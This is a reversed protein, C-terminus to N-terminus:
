NLNINIGVGFQIGKKYSMVTATFSEDASLPKVTQVQKIEPNLLNKGYIKASIRDTIKKNIILDLSIYGKEVIASNYMIDSYTFDEPVGLVYINDSTYNGVLTANLAKEENNSFILSGNIILDSAGQLGTQTVRNYQFEEYLDQKFWMKTGNFLFKLSPKDSTPKIIFFRTEFEIGYVNAQEGTNAFYYVGSSGRKQTKNIPDKIAKYFGTVSVLEKPRPYMEWKLDLNTSKSSILEENGKTVRGTASVYEFPALEKFEPLTITKSAAFRFANKDSLQYKLNLSPLVNKYNYTVDGERGVYNGVNWNVLLDDLEYRAGLSGSLNSFQFGLNLFGAKAFLSANYTDPVREKLELEESAYMAQNLFVEDMNDINTLEVRKAQVGVLSSEFERTKYRFNGGLTFKIKKKEEDLLRLENKLYGNIENDSIYQASKRQDAGGVWIFESLDDELITVMNRIRNPENAEVINYAAGWKLTNMGGLNHRGLLQTIYLNTTKINQDRAFISSDTESSNTQEFYYGTQNRGSEYLEETSKSIALCNLSLKHNNNIDYALNFLGTTNIKTKFEEVDTFLENVENNRYKAYTGNQYESSGSHSFTAFLNLERGLFMFKRGVSASYGFNVPLKRDVTNWSQQQVAQNTEYPKEYIGYRLDNNNQTARFSGFTSLVNTTSGTSVGIQIKDSSSKSSIDIAGSTQDAYGEVSYTKNIGVNKIVETSFLNLDINKKEVDDSPIPLGNMTTSLYRDGLGRIYVDGSGESQRVGSIKTAAGAADSVGMASLRKSGISEVIVDANKQEMILAMESERNLKAEVKVGELAIGETKMEINVTIEGEPTIEIQKKFTEYGMFSCMLTYSGAPASFLFNGDFDSTGGITTGELFVNAFPLPQQEGNVAETLKGKITGNQSFATFATLILFFALFVKSNMKTILSTISRTEFDAAFM